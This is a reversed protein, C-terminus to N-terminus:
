QLRRVASLGGEADRMSFPPCVPDVEQARRLVVFELRREVSAFYKHKRGRVPTFGKPRDLTPSHRAGHGDHICVNRRAHRINAFGPLRSQRRMCAVWLGKCSLQLFQKFVDVEPAAITLIALSLNRPLERCLSHDFSHQLMVPIGERASRM